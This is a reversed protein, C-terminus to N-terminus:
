KFRHGSYGRVRPAKKGQSATSVGTGGHPRGIDNANRTVSFHFENVVGSKSVMTDSLTILQARGVALKQKPGAPPRNLAESKRGGQFLGCDVLVGAQRTQVYYASGTVQGGAAGVVKIKM